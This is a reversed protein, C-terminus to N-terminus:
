LMDKIRKPLTNRNKAWKMQLKFSTRIQSDEEDTIINGDTYVKYMLLDLFKNKTAKNHEM